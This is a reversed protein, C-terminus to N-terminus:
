GFLRKLLTKKPPPTQAVIPMRVVDAPKYGYREQYARWFNRCETAAREEDKRFAAGGSFRTAPSTERGRKVTRPEILKGGYHDLTPLSYGDVYDPDACPAHVLWVRQTFGSTRAFAVAECEAWGGFREIKDPTTDRIIERLYPRQKASDRLWVIETEASLDVFKERKLDARVDRYIANLMDAFTHRIKERSAYDPAQSMLADLYGQQTATLHEAM